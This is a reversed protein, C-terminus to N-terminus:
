ILLLVPVNNLLIPSYLSVYSILIGGITELERGPVVTFGGLLAGVREDINLDELSESLCSSDSISVLSQRLTVPVEEGSQIGSKGIGGTDAM